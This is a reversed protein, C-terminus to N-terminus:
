FRNKIEYFNKCLLLVFIDSALVFENAIESEFNFDKTLSEIEKFNFIM